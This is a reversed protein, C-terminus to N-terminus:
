IILRKGQAQCSQVILYIVKICDLEADVSTAIIWKLRVMDINGNPLILNLQKFHCFSVCFYSPESINRCNDEIEKAIFKPRKKCAPDESSVALSNRLLAM